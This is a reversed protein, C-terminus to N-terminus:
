AVVASPVSPLEGIHQLLAAHHRCRGRYRYGHCDCSWATVRHLVGPDSKSTAYYTTGHSYIRVGSATAQAALRVVAQAETEIQTSQTQTTPSM